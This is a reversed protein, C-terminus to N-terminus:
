VLEEMMIRNHGNKLDKQFVGSALARGPSNAAPNLLAVGMGETKWSM